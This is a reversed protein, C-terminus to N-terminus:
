QLFGGFIIPAYLALMYVFGAAMAVSTNIGGSTQLTADAENIDTVEKKIKTVNKICHKYYTKNAIVGCIIMVTFRLLECVLPAFVLIIEKTSYDQLVKSMENMSVGEISKLFGMYEPTNNLFSQALMLSIIIGFIVAGIKYMKRYIFYIGPFILASFNFRSRSFDKINKFVRLYYPTNSQVYKAMEGATINEAIEEEPSLGGMPDFPTQQGQGGMNFPGGQPFGQSGTGQAQGEAGQAQGSESKPFKELPANCSRCFFSEEPNITSCKPCSVVNSGEKSVEEEVVDEFTFSDSHRDKYFCENKIEYCKRHHPTGCEPCVVIDDGDTFKLKCVPCKLGIYDM